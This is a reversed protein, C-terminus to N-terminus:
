HKKDNLITKLIRKYYKIDIGVMALGKFMKVLNPFKFLFIGYLNTAVIRNGIERYAPKDLPLNQQRYNDYIISLEQNRQYESLVGRRARTTSNHSRQYNLSEAIYYFSPNRSLLNFWFFKDGAFKFKSCEKLTNGDVHASRFVCSSANLIRFPDNQFFWNYFFKDNIANYKGSAKRNKNHSLKDGKSDVSITECFALALSKDEELPKICKELFSDESFDDSEAIWIYTGKAVQLGRNWQIFTSGSNLENYIIQSVKSENRFKEIIGSSNDSSGDDLIIVEFNKYSQKLISELRQVLYSAHNYSPVIISVLSM